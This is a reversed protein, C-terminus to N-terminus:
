NREIRVARKIEILKIPVNKLDNYMADIDPDHHHGALTLDVLKNPLEYWTSESREFFHFQETPLTRYIVDLGPSVNGKLYVNGKPTRARFAVAASSYRANFLISDGDATACTWFSETTAIGNADLKRETRSTFTGAVGPVGQATLAASSRIQDTLFFVAGGGGDFDVFTALFTERNPGVNNLSEGDPGRADQEEYVAFILPKNAAALMQPQGAARRAVNAGDIM